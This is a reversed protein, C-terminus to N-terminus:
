WSCKNKNMLLKLTITDTFDLYIKPGQDDIINTIKTKVGGVGTLWIERTHIESMLTDIESVLTDEYAEFERPNLAFKEKMQVGQTRFLCM